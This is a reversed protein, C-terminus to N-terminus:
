TWLSVGSIGIGLWLFGARVRHNLKRLSLKLIIRGHYRLHNLSAIGCAPLYHTRTEILDNTKEIYVRGLGELRV